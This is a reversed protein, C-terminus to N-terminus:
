DGIRSKMLLCGSEHPIREHSNLKVPAIVEFGHRHYVRLAESNDAFVILSLIEFGSQKAKEKTLSILRGGIGNRRLRADVCLADLFLSDDVRSAYFNRLHDLRDKPFFHKMEATIEHFHSPFSLAMGVVRNETEAVIANKYTHSGHDSELNHAVIQVPTLEPILDHFLFEVVGGSAINIMEAMPLCDAKRATRYIIDMVLIGEKSIIEPTITILTNGKRM